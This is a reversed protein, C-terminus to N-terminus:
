SKEKQISYYIIRKVKSDCRNDIVYWKFNYYCVATNDFYLLHHTNQKYAKLIM